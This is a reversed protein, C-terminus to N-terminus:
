GGKPLRDISTAAANLCLGGFFNGAPFKRNKGAVRGARWECHSWGRM